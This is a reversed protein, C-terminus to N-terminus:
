EKEPRSARRLREGAARAPVPTRGTLGIESQNRRTSQWSRVTRKTAVIDEREIGTRLGAQDPNVRTASGLPKSVKGSAGKRGSDCEVEDAAEPEAKENGHPRDALRGQVRNVASAM